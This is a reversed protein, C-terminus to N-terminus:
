YTVTVVVVDTYAGATAAGNHANGQGNPIVGYVPITVDSGTGTYTLADTTPGWNITLGADQFLNYALEAGGQGLMERGLYGGSADSNQGPNLGVQAVTGNNCNLGIGGTATTDTAVGPNFTGFAVGTNTTATCVGQVSASIPLNSNFTGAQGTSHYAVCGLSLACVLALKIGHQTSYLKM